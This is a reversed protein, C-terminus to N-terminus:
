DDWPDIVLVGCLAFHDKNRTVVSLGHVSATAAILGDVVPVPTGRLEASGSCRGWVAAVKSDVPLVRPGFRPLLSDRVWSALRSKRGEDSVKEIGKEIEGITLASIFFQAEDRSELWEIVKASPERRATESLICTDLLFSL